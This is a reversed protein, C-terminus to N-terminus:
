ESRLKMILPILTEQIDKYSFPGIQKKRIIGKKDILFSEPVGYVGYDIGVRGDLDMVSVKYPNGLQQLWRSGAEETDKYNLGIIEVINKSALDNVLPHESRCAACWSAWVNLLWVKGLMDKTSLQEGSKGLVPLTFQPAARGINEPPIEKPDLLLGVGLFIALVVFAILPIFAKNM